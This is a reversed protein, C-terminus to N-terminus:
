LGPIKNYGQDRRVPIFGSERILSQMGEADMRHRTGTAAVVNEEIMISGMDDAGGWLSLAGVEAGVTLWSAQIHPINTLLIRAIATLRLHETAGVKPSPQTRALKTGGSQFPWPIFALVGRRGAALSREQMERLLLLHELREEITEIHGYMMTASTLLGLTQAEEIVQCWQAVTAKRPSLIRRVRDSLIEAGAGPLSDLGAAILRELVKHTSLKARQAIFVIEPPGLAHLRLTPFESKLWRFLDEYDELCMRPDLGGQLLIQDGGCALLELIKMRYEERSTRFLPINGAGAHFGCFLCQAACANGININRDIQWTVEPQPTHRLRVAHAVAMLEDLPAYKWLCLAADLNLPHLDLAQAYLTDLRAAPEEKQM